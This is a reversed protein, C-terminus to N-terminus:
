RGCVPCDPDAPVPRSTLELTSLNAVSTRGAHPAKAGILVHIADQAGLAAAVQTSLSTTGTVLAHPQSWARGEDGLEYDAYQALASPCACCAGPAGPQWTPGCRLVSGNYGCAIHAVGRPVLATSALKEVWAISPQDASILVFDCGDTLAVIDQPTRAWEQVPEVRSVHGYARVLEGVADTKARGVQDALFAQRGLNTPEVVDPDVLRLMGVDHAALTLAAWSGVGGCGLVCVTGTRLREYLEAPDGGFGELMIRVNASPGHPDWAGDVLVEARALQSVISEVRATSARGALQAAIQAATHEGDCLRLTDWVVRDPDRVIIDVGRRAATLVVEHDRVDSLFGARVRPRRLATTGAVLATM